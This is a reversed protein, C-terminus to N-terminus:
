AYKIVKAANLPRMIDNMEKSQINKKKEMIRKDIPCPRMTIGYAYFIISDWLIFAPFFHPISIVLLHERHETYCIAATSGM